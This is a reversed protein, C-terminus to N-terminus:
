GLLKLWQNRVVSWDFNEVKLRDNEALPTKNEEIIGRIQQVMKSPNEKREISKPPSEASMSSTDSPPAAGGLGGRSLPLM